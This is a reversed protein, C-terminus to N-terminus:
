FDNLNINLFNNILNPDIIQSLIVPITGLGIIELFTLLILGTYLLYIKFVVKLSLVKSLKKINFFLM